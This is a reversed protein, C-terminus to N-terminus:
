DITTLQVSLSGGDSDDLGSVAACDQAKKEARTNLHTRLKLSPGSGGRDLISLLWTKDQDSVLKCCRSTFVPPRSTL